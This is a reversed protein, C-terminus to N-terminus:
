QNILSSLNGVLEHNKQILNQNEVPKQETVPQILSPPIMVDKPMAKEIELKQKQKLYNLFIDSLNTRGTDQLVKVLFEENEVM